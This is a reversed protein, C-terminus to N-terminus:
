LDIQTVNKPMNGENQTEHCCCLEDNNGADVSCTLRYDM